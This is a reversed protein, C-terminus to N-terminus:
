IGHIFPAPHLYWSDPFLMPIFNISTDNKDVFLKKKCGRILSFWPKNNLPPVGGITIEDSEKKHYEGL